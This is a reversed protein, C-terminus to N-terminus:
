FSGKYLQIAENLTVVEGERWRFIPVQSLIPTSSVHRDLLTVNTIVDVIRDTLSTWSELEEVADLDDEAEIEYDRWPGIASTVCITYLNNDTM